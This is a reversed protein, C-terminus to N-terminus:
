GLNENLEPSKKAKLILIKYMDITSILLSLVIPGFIFGLPGFFIVGGLISFLIFISPVDLGKGFFYASLMNDVFFIVLIGFSGIEVAGLINGSLILYAVTPVIVFPTGVGPIIGIIGAISGWVLANPIGFFYFGATLLVWRILGVLLTGRIVSTIASHISTLIEKNQEKGFPSLLVLSSSIKEGDRLFFFFALLLFFTQFFIYATQSLLASFNNSIFALVTSAYDSINFSFNPFLPHALSEIMHQIAQLYQEQGNQILAFFIQIQQFIQSGFFLIPIILFILGLLVIIFAFLNKGGKYYLLMKKYLPRFLMALVAALVLISFFPRFVFFAMVLIGACLVIFSVIELKKKEM